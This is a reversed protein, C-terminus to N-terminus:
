TISNAHLILNLISTEAHAIGNNCCKYYNVAYNVANWWNNLFVRKIKLKDGNLQSAIAM